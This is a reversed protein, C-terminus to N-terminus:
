REEVPYGAKLWEEWGGKLAHVNKFGKQFFKLAASASLYEDHDSCYFVLTTNKPTAAMFDGLKSLEIRESDKIKKSSSAYAKMNRSDIIMLDSQNMLELVKDKNIRPIDDVHHAIVTSLPTIWFLFFLLASLLVKM